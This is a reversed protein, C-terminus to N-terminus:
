LYITLSNILQYDQKKVTEPVISNYEGNFQLLFSIVKSVKFEFKSNLLLRYDSFNGIDPQVFLMIEFNLRDSLEQKFRPRFSLRCLKERESDFRNTFEYVLAASLSLDTNLFDKDKEAFNDIIDYKFGIGTELRFDIEQVLNRSPKGLIFLTFKKGMRHDLMAQFAMKDTKKEDDTELYNINSSLVIETKASKWSFNLAVNLGFAETNGQSLDLGFSVSGTTSVASKEEDKVETEPFLALSFVCLSMFLGFALGVVGKSVRQKLM